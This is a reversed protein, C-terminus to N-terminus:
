PNIISKFEEVIQNVFIPKILKIKRKAENQEMEYDYYTLKEKTVTEKVQKGNPLTYTATTEALNAYANSTIRIKETITKKDATSIVLTRTNVQYYSHVNNISQSWTLGTQVTTNAAGNAAYKENVYKIFNSYSLPWDYQPDIIDNFMLVIWHREPNNYYKAAIIEPTDTDKIDYSYFASSNEKLKEEFAFRATINTVTDLSVRNNASLSYLTLPFNNFYNAM